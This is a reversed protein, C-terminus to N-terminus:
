HMVEELDKFGGRNYTLRQIDRIEKKTLAKKSLISRIESSNRPNQLAYLLPIPLHEKMFRHLFEESDAMDVADDRLIKVIGLLRGYNSLAKVENVTGGGLIAGIRTHAEVDAAKKRVVNLYEKPTVDTRGRFSLELAEADGLEFFSQTIIDSIISLKHVPVGKDVAGNLLNFGKFLLADGALLAIEKGYKGYVTPRGEKTKSQDIIDDHIDIAGSILIMPVAVPTTISPNGGVAECVISLLAPRALDHWCETMFYTLAEQAGKCEIEEKLAEEKATKLAESGREKFIRQVHKLAEEPSLRTSTTKKETTKM